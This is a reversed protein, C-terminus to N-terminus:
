RYLASAQRFLFVHRVNNTYLSTYIWWVNASAQSISPKLKLPFTPYCVIYVHSVPKSLCLRMPKYSSYLLRIYLANCGHICRCPHIVVDMADLMLTLAAQVLSYLLYAMYM